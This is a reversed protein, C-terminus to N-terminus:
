TGLSDRLAQLFADSTPSLPANARRIVSLPRQVMLNNLPLAVLTGEDLERAISIRPLWAIGGGHMVAQKLAETNGFEMVSGQRIGNADLMETILERTGSGHERMLLPQNDIDATTVRKKRLLEHDAAVVPVLDDTQFQEAVLGGVHLPGEIFGLTFRMDAVGQSIQETNGVFMTIRVDPNARRFTALRRPLVYTGNTNSAGISLHGKRADAIEQMAAQATRSIDFLRAAYEHLVEGAHTMRMGRPRREFLVVGLRDEFEKIERSLAPQSIHLQQAAASISGTEAVANFIALHHLNM